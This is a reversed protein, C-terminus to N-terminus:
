IKKIKKKTKKRGKKLVRLLVASLAAILVVGAALCGGLIRNRRLKQERALREAEERAEQEKKAAAEAAAQAAAKEEELRAQEQKEREIREQEQREAEQREQELKELREQELLRDEGHTTVNEFFDNKEVDPGVTTRYLGYYCPNYLPVMSAKPYAGYYWVFDAIQSIHCQFGRYVSVEFATAGGCSELPRDWDMVIENEKYLHFYAKPVDWLGYAEALEPYQAPDNSIELAEAVLEAYVMHMPHKYEGDFDHAVVVKPKFRRMQEVVYGLLEERPYGYREFYSFAEEKSSFRYDPVSNYVPYNKLGIAWLGNLIEHIRETTYSRHDTLYVVQVQYGLETGYYPLIGAFFLHEDDGHTSFLVLDTENDLPAEWKQVFDPVRGPTFLYVENIWAAAEPFRLTVSGPATGFLAQIDVYQHLYREQGVEAVEGTDNNTVSFTGYEYQFIIYVSGIGEPHEATFSAGAESTGGYLLKKDFFAGPNSFGECQTMYQAQSIDKAEPDAPETETARAATIGACPLCIGLCLLVSLFRRLFQNM